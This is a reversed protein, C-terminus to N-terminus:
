FFVELSSELPGNIYTQPDTHSGSALARLWRMSNTMCTWQFISKLEIQKKTNRREKEEDELIKIKSTIHAKYGSRAAAFLLPTWPFPREASGPTSKARM